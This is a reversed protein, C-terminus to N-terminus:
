PEDAKPQQHDLALMSIGFSIHMQTNKYLQNLIVRSDEGKKLEFVIRMGKRDSEDRIDSIGEIRKERVMDAVNEILKAKNVQYPIETVIIRQRDGKFEEIETKARIQIIGKRGTTYADYIGQRGYIFGATPFDPGPVIKM